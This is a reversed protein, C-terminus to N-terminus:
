AQADCVHASFQWMLQLRNHKKLLYIYGPAIWHESSDDMNYYDVHDKTRFTQVGDSQSHHDNWSTDHKETGQQTLHTRPQKM